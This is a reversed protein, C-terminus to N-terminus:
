ANLKEEINNLIEEKLYDLDDKEIDQLNGYGDIRFIDNNLNANGLFYYLRILGGNELEHKAQEEVIEYDVFDEFLYDFDWDQTDNEYDIITNRLETYYGDYDYSSAINEIREKLEELEKM